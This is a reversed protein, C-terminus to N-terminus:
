PVPSPEAQVTQWSGDMELVAQRIDNPFAVCFPNPLIQDVANFWHSLTGTPTLLACPKVFQFENFRASVPKRGRRRVMRQASDINEIENLSLFRNDFARRSREIRKNDMIGFRENHGRRYSLVGDRRGPSGESLRTSRDLSKDTRMM